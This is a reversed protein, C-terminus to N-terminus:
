FLHADSPNVIIENGLCDQKEWNRLVAAQKSKMFFITKKKKVNKPRLSKKRGSLKRSYLLTLLPKTTLPSQTIIGNIIKNIYNVWLLRILLTSKNCDSCATTLYPVSPVTLRWARRERPRPEFRLRNTAEPRPALKRDAPRWSLNGLQNITPSEFCFLFSM